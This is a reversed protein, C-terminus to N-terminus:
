AIQKLVEGNNMLEAISTDELLKLYQDRVAKWRHHLACPNEESCQNRGLICGSWRNIHDIPDVIDLLSIERPEVALRFGGGMGKQSEVYGEHSFMQLLKGLYNRPAGITEAIAGAGAYEGHPLEALAVMARIAHIGTKSIM